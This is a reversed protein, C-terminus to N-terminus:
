ERHVSLSRNMMAVDTEIAHSAMELQALSDHHANLVNLIQGVEGPSQEQSSRQQAVHLDHVTRDLTQTLGSLRAEVQTARVYAVEREVDADEPVVHSQAAFLQDVYGELTDLETELESQFATGSQHLTTDVEVQRMMLRSTWETLSAISRQSDRLVADYEAVRQAENM